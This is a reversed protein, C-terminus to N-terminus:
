PADMGIALTLEVVSIHIAASGHGYAPHEDLFCLGHAKEQKCRLMNAFILLCPMYFGTSLINQLALLQSRRERASRSDTNASESSRTEWADSSVAKSCIKNVNPLFHGSNEHQYIKCCNKEYIGAAKFCM